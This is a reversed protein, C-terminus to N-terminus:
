KELYKIFRDMATEPRSRRQISARRRLDELQEAAFERLAKTSANRVNEEACSLTTDSILRNMKLALGKWGM